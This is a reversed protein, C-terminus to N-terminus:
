WSAWLSVLVVKGKLGALRAQFGALDVQEVRAPEGVAVHEHGNGHGLVIAVALFGFFILLWAYE